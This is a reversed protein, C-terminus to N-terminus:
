TWIFGIYDTNAITDSVADKHSAVLFAKRIIVLPIKGWTLCLGEDSFCFRVFTEIVKALHFWIWLLDSSSIKKKHKCIAKKKKQPKLNRSM